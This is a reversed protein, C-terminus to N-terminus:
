VAYQHGTQHEGLRLLDFVQHDGLGQHALQHAIFSQHESPLQLELLQHQSARQHVTQHAIAAQHESPIQVLGFQHATAQSLTLFAQHEAPLQPEFVQHNSARQHANCSQHASPATPEAALAGLTLLLVPLLRRLVAGPMALLKNKGRKLAQREAATMPPKAVLDVAREAADYVVARDRANMNTTLQLGELFRALTEMLHATKDAPLAVTDADEMVEPQKRRHGSLRRAASRTAERVEYGEQAYQRDVFAGANEPTLDGNAMRELLWKYAENAVDGALAPNRCRSTHFRAEREVLPKLQNLFGDREQSSWCM